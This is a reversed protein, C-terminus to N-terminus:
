SWQGVEWRTFEPVFRVGGMIRNEGGKGNRNFVVQILRENERISLGGRAEVFKKIAEDPESLEHPNILNIAAGLEYDGAYKLRYRDMVVDDDKRNVDNVMIGAPHSGDPNVQNKVLNAFDRYIRKIRIGEERTPDIPSALAGYDLLVLRVVGGYDEAQAEMDMMIEASNLSPTENVVIPLEALVDFEALWKQTLEADIKAEGRYYTDLPFRVRAAALREFLKEQTMEQSSMYVCGVEGRAKMGSAVNDLIACALATKGAKSLGIIGLVEGEVLLNEYDMMSFGTKISKSGGRSLIDIAREKARKAIDKAHPSRHTKGIGQIGKRTRDILQRKEEAPKDPNSLLHGVTIYTNAEFAARVTQAHERYHRINLTQGDGTRKKALETLQQKGNADLDAEIRFMLPKGACAFIAKALTQMEKPFAQWPEFDDGKLEMMHAEYALRANEAKIDLLMILSREFADM